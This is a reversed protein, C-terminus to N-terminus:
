APLISGFRLGVGAVVFAVSLVTVFVIRRAMAPLTAETLRPIIVLRAHAATVVTAALLALKIWVLVTVPSDINHWDAATPLGTQALWGGTAVQVVMAPLGLREYASEFDRLRQVSRERPVRPLVALALM